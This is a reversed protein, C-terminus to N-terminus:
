SLLKHSVHIAASSTDSRSIREAKIWGSRRIRSFDVEPLSAQGPVRTARARAVTSLGQELMLWVQARQEEGEPWPRPGRKKCLQKAIKLCSYAYFFLFQHGLNWGTHRAYSEFFRNQLRSFQVTHKNNRYALLYFNACFHALDFNPDGLRIEDFDFVKLGGDVLIHEYHFDKHIPSTNALVLDDVQDQLYNSINAAAAKEEPYKNGILEVWDHLNSIEDEIKFTKEIPLHSQHLTALWAGALDMIRVLEPNDLPLESIMEGLFKGEAPVFVLMSLSPVSGLPHPVSLDSKGAFVENWLVGMVSLARDCMYPEPYIKGFVVSDDRCDMGALDYRIVGRKGPKYALLRAARVMPTMDPCAISLLIKGLEDTMMDANLAGWLAPFERDVYTSPFKTMSTATSLHAVLTGRWDEEVGTAGIEVQERLTANAADILHIVLPWERFTLSRFRRGAIKLLSAAQYLSLWRVDLNPRADLYADLFARGATEVFAGHEPQRIAKWCLYALFNGIDRAPNAWCFGDLDILVLEGNQILFQDTRMAGHSPVPDPETLGEMKNKIAQIAAEFDAALKPKVKEMAATYEHLDNLDDVLTRVEGPVGCEHLAALCAGGRRMWAERAELDLNTDYVHRTFEIGGTVAPQVIMQLEPWYAVPPLVRPMGPVTLSAQYLATITKILQDSDSSFLKAYFSQLGDPTHVDYRFVCHLGPKYRIPHIELDEVQAAQGNGLAKAFRDRMGDAETAPALWPLRPDNPYYRTILGEPKIELVGITRLPAEGAKEVQIEYTTVCRRAPQYKADQLRFVQVNGQPGFISPQRLLQQEFLQAVAQLDFAMPLDPLQEDFDFRYEM